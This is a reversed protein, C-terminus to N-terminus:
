PGPRPRGKRGDRAVLASLREAIELCDSAYQQSVVMGHGDRRCSLGKAVQEVPGRNVSVIMAARRCGGFERLMTMAGVRREDRLDTAGHMAVTQATTAAVM